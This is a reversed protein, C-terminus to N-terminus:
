AHAIQSIGFQLTQRLFEFPPEGRKFVFQQQFGLQDVFMLVLDFAGLGNMGEPQLGVLEAIWPCLDFGIVLDEFECGTIRFDHGILGIRGQM